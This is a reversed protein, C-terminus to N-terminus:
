SHGLSQILSIPPDSRGISHEAERRTLVEHIMLTDLTSSFSRM